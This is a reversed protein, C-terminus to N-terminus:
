KSIKEYCAAFGAWQWNKKQDAASLAIVDVSGGLALANVGSPHIPTSEATSQSLHAALSGPADHAIIASPNDRGLLRRGIGKNSSDKLTYPSLLETEEEAQLPSHYLYIYSTNVYYDEEASVTGFLTSDSPCRFHPEADATTLNEADPEPFFALYGGILLLNPVAHRGSVIRCYRGFGCMRAMEKGTSHHFSVAICDKHSMGYLNQALGLQKLKSVCSINRARERAASLAPLLMAALIAIIAIVVLLEILTFDFNHKKM